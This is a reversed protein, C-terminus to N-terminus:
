KNKDIEELEESIEEYIENIIDDMKNEEMIKKLKLYDKMKKTKEDM